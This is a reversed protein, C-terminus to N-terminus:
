FIPNSRQQLEKFVRNLGVQHQQAKDQEAKQMATQTEGDSYGNVLNRMSNARQVAFQKKGPKDNLDEVTATPILADAGFIRTQSNAANKSRSGRNLVQAQDGGKFYLKTLDDPTPGARVYGVNAM